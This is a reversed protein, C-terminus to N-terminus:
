LLDFSPKGLYYGQIYDIGIDSIIDFEEKTEVQEAITDIGIKKAFISITEVVDKANEHKDIDHILSGDIKLIDIGLHLLYSFNAYGSGFDDLAIKTGTEKIDHIHKKLTDFDNIEETELIEFTLKSAFHRNESLMKLIIELIDHNFLDQLALNISLEIDNTEMTEKASELIYKTLENYVKTHAISPLFDAPPIVTGDTDLMRVLMEYKKLKKTDTEFIPQFMCKIRSEEM